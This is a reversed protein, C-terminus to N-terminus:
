IKLIFKTPPTRRRTSGCLIEYDLMILKNSRSMTVSKEFNIESVLFIIGDNHDIFTNKFYGAIFPSKRIQNGKNLVYKDM